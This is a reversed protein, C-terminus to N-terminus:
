RGKLLLSPWFINSNRISNGKLRRQRFSPKCMSCNPPYSAELDNMISQVVIGTCESCLFRSSPCCIGEGSDGTVTFECQCVACTEETEEQAKGGKGEVGKTQGHRSRVAAAQAAAAAAAKRRERTAAVARRFDLRQRLAENLDCAGNLGVARSGSTTSLKGWWAETESRAFCLVAHSPWAAAQCSRDCFWAAQCRSCRKAANSAGCHACM